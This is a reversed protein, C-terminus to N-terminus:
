LQGQCSLTFSSTIIFPKNQVMYPGCLVEGQIWSWRDAYFYPLSILNVVNIEDRSTHQVESVWKMECMTKLQLSHTKNLLLFM